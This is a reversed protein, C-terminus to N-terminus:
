WTIPDSGGYAGMDTLDDGANKAPSTGQLHYNDNAADVFLPNAFIEDLNERCAMLQMLICFFPPTSCTDTNIGHNRCLLNYDRNEPCACSTGIKVNIGAKENNTCINNKIPIDNSAYGSPSDNVAGALDDYVIGAGTNDQGNGVVTNNVIEDIYDGFRIGARHNKYVLNNYITGSAHRVDVGGGYGTIGNNYVKNRKITLVASGPIGSFGGGGATQDGTHIGGRQNDYIKNDSIEFTCASKIRIGGYVNNHITNHTINGNSSDYNIEIGGYQNNHIDTGNVSLITAGMDYIGGYGNYDIINSEVKVVNASKIRIGGLTNDHITNGNITSNTEAGNISIGGWTNNNIGNDTITVTASTANVGIGARSNTYITNDQITNTSGSCDIFIGGWTNHHILNNNRVTITTAGRNYIGSQGNHQIENNDVIAQVVAGKSNPDFAIGAQGSTTVNNDSITINNIDELRIGAHQQGSIRNGDILATHVGYLWIGTLNHDHINNNQITGNTLDFLRIGALNGYITNGTANEGITVSIDGTDGYARTLRIGAGQNNHINNGKITPIDLSGGGAKLGNQYSGIGAKNNEFVTNNTITPHAHGWLGIGVGNDGNCDWITNNTIKATSNIGNGIGPGNVTHILNNDIIASVKGGFGQLGIGGFGTNNRIINNKITPSGGAIRILFMDAVGANQITFGDLTVDTSLDGPIRVVNDSGDGDIITLTARKLARNTSYSGDTYTTTTNDGESVVNVGSMIGLNGTYTEPATRGPTGVYVTGGGESSAANIAIQISTCDCGSPCVTKDGAMATNVILLGGWLFSFVACLTSLIIGEKLQRSDM